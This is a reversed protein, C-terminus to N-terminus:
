QLQVGCSKCFKSDSDIQTGCHKCFVTNSTENAIKQSIQASSNVMEKILDMNQAQLRVARNIGWKSLQPLFGIILCFAGIFIGFTMMLLGIIFQQHDFDGFGLIFLVIGCIGVCLFAFGAIKFILARVNSKNM